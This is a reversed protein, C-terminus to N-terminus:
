RASRRTPAGPGSAAEIVAAENIARQSYETDQTALRVLQPFGYVLTGNDDVDVRIRDPSRKALDTLLRDAETDSLGLVQAVDLTSLTGGRAAALAFVAQEFTRAEANAGSKQLASGGRLFAFTLILTIVLLGLGIVWGVIGTPFLWLFFWGVFFSVISGFALTLWGVIRAVQGGVRSPKGTLHVAPGALPTRVKGCATCHPLAGRYIIPADRGCHPCM